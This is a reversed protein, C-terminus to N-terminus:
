YYVKPLVVGLGHGNVLSKLIYMGKAVMTGVVVGAVWSAVLVGFLPVLCEGNPDNYLLPNNM